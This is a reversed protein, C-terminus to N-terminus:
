SKDGSARAIATAADRLYQNGAVMTEVDDCTGGLDTIRDHGVYILYIYARRLSILEQLLDPAAHHLPEQDPKTPENQKAALKGAELGSMYVLTMADAEDEIEQALATRLAQIYTATDGIETWSPSDWRTLVDQAAQHLTTM